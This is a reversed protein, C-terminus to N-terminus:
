PNTARAQLASFGDSFTHTVTWLASTANGSDYTCELLSDGGFKEAVRVQVVGEIPFNETQVVIQVPGNNQITVDSSAQLPATPDAPAPLADISLIRVKPANAPPFIQPPSGPPIAVTEPFSNIGTSLMATEFRIRGAATSASSGNGDKAEATGTGAITDAILRVAGGSGIGPDAAPTSPRNGGNCQVLGDLTLTDAVAILIAGGGGGGGGNGGEGGGGSGGLLPLNAPNGYVTRHNGSQAISGGGPGVGSGSGPPGAAGGRFGGPAAVTPVLADIGVIGDAGNLSVTGAITASGSVLWVVPAGTPHNKFTVTVGAPINISSYKYVVAWQDPDYIGLGANATNDDTWTGTVAQSLDVEVNAVPNFAGDSGDSPIVLAAAPLSAALLLPALLRNM